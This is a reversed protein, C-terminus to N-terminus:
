KPKLRSSDISSLFAGLFLLGRNFLFQIEPRSLGNQKASSLQDIISEAVTGLNDFHAADLRKLGCHRGLSALKAKWSKAEEQQPRRRLLESVCVNICERLVILVGVAGGDEVVPIELSVRADELLQLASKSNGSATDLGLRRIEARANSLSPYKEMITALKESAKQVSPPYPSSPAPTLFSPQMLSPPRLPFHPMVGSMSTNTVSQSMASFTSVDTYNPPISKAVELWSKVNQNQRVWEEPSLGSVPMEAYLIRFQPATDSVLRANELIEKSISEIRKAERAADELANLLEEKEKVPEQAM